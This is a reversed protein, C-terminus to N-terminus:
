AGGDGGHDHYKRQECCGVHTRAFHQRLQLVDRSSVFKYRGGEERKRGNAEGKQGLVFSSGQFASEVSPRRRLYDRNAGDM